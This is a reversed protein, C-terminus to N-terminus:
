VSWKGLVFVTKITKTTLEILQRWPSQERRVAHRFTFPERLLMWLDVGKSTQFIKAISPGCTMGTKESKHNARPHFYRLYAAMGSLIAFQIFNSM